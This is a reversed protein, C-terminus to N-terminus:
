ERDGRVVVKLPLEGSIELKKPVSGDVREYATKLATAWHPHSPDLAVRAHIRAMLELRTTGLEVLPFAAEVATVEGELYRRLAGELARGHGGANGEKFRTAEGNRVLAQATHHGLEASM